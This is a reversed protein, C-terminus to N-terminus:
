AIFNEIQSISIPKEVVHFGKNDFLFKDVPKSASVLFIHADPVFNKISEAELWGFGDPLNNDLIVVDPLNNKLKNMGDHLTNSIFVECNRKSLYYKLLLCFDVEDDIILVKKPM